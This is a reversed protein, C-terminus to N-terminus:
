GGLRIVTIVILRTKQMFALCVRAAEDDLTQGRISYNWDNYVEKYEDKKKEHYGTNIINKIDGISLRREEGREFAHNSIVYAGRDMLRKALVVIHDIKSVRKKM